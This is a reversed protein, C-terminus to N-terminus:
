HLKCLLFSPFESLFVMDKLKKRDHLREKSGEEKWENEQNKLENMKVNGIYVKLTDNIM